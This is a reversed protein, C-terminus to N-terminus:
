VWQATQELVHKHSTGFVSRGSVNELDVWILGQTERISALALYTIIRRHPRALPLSTVLLSWHTSLADDVAMSLNELNVGAKLHLM